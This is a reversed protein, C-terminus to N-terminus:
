LVSSAYMRCFSKCIKTKCGRWGGGPFEMKAEDKEKFLKAKLVGAGGETPPTHINEPVM